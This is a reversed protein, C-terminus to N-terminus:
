AKVRSASERSLSSAAFTTPFTSADFGEIASVGSAGRTLKGWVTELDHGLPTIWGMGTIVIRPTDNMSTDSHESM